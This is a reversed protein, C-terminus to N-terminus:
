NSRVAIERALRELESSKPSENGSVRIEIPNVIKQLYTDLQQKLNADLM